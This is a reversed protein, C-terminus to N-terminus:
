GGELYFNVTTLSHRLDFHNIAEYKQRWDLYGKVSLRTSGVVFVFDALDQMYSGATGLTPFFTNYCTHDPAQAIVVYKGALDYLYILWSPIRKPKM